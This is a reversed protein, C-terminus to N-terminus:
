QPDNLGAFICDIVKFHKTEGTKADVGNNRFEVNTLTDTYPIPNRVTPKWLVKVVFAPILTIDGGPAAAELRKLEDLSMKIQMGDDKVDGYGRSVVKAGVGHHDEKMRERNYRVEQAELLAVGGILIQIDAWSKNAVIM